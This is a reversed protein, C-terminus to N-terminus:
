GHNANGFSKINFKLLHSFFIFLALLLNESLNGFLIYLWVNNLATEFDVSFIKLAMGALGGGLMVLCFGFLTMGIAYIFPVKGLYICLLCFIGMLILTHPGLPWQFYLYLNRIFFISSGFSISFILLRQITFRVDFFMKGSVIMLLAQVCYFFILITLDKM